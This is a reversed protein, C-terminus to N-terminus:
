LVVPQQNIPWLLAVGSFVCFSRTTWIQDAAETNSELEQRRSEESNVKLEWLLSVPIWLELKLM